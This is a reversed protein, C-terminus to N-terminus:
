NECLINTWGKGDPRNASVHLIDEPWKPKLIKNNGDIVRFTYGWTEMKKLLLLPDTNLNRLGYPWFEMLIKLKNNKLMEEGGAIVLGEAGQVDMKIFDIKKGLLFADLTTTEVEIEGELDIAPINSLALSMNGLNATDLFLKIKGVANSLALPFLRVNQKKNLEINRSLLSFNKPEPEFAYVAGSEGVAKSLILTFYGIHAGIDLVAMGEKVLNELLETEYADYVGKLMLEPVEGKDKPDVYMDGARTHILSVGRPKLCSFIFAYLWRIGPIKGLNKGYLAHHIRKFVSFLTM